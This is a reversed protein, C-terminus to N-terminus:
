KIKGEKIIAALQRWYELLLQCDIPTLGFLELRQMERLQGSLLRAFGDTPVLQGTITTALETILSHYYDQLVPSSFTAPETIRAVEGTFRTYWRNMARWYDVYLQRNAPTDAAIAFASVQRWQKLIEMYLSQHDGLQDERNTRVFMALGGIIRTEAHERM